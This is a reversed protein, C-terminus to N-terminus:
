RAASSKLSYLSKVIILVRGELEPGCEPGAVIYVKEKTMAHLYANGINAAKVLLDNTEAIFM